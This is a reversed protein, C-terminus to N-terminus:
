GNGQDGTQIESLSKGLRKRPSGSRRKPSTPSAPGGLMAALEPKIEGGGDPTGITDIADSVGLLVSQRVGDRIWDFLNFSM